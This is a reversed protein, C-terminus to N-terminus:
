KRWREEKELDWKAFTKACQRRHRPIWILPMYVRDHVIAFVWWAVYPFVMGVFFVLVYLM